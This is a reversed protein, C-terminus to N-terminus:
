KTSDEEPFLRPFLIGTFAGILTYIANIGEQPLYTLLWSPEISQAPFEQYFGVALCKSEGSILTQLGKPDKLKLHIDRLRQIGPNQNPAMRCNLKDFHRNTPIILFQQSQLKLSQGMMRVEGDLIESTVIDDNINNSRDVRSFRVRKVPIDGRILQDLAEVTQEPTTKNITPLGIELTTPSPLKLIYDQGEPIWTLSTELTDRVISLAPIKGNALFLNVEGSNVGFKLESVIAQSSNVPIDQCNTETNDQTRLCFSLQNTKPQYTLQEVQTNPAIRLEKLNISNPQKTSTFQDPIELTLKSNSDTFQLQLQNLSKLKTNLSPDLSSFKGRLVLSSPQKGQLALKTLSLSNLFRKDVDGVYTFSVTKTVLNGEFRSVGRIYFNGLLLVIWLILLLLALIQDRKSIHGIWKIVREGLTGLWHWLSILLHSIRRRWFRHTVLGRPLSPKFPM